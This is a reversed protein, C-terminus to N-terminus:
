AEAKKAAKYEDYFSKILVLASLGLMVLVVPSTYFIAYDNHSISLARRFNAEAIPELIMALLLPPLPFRCKLMLYGLVGFVAVILLDFTSNNVAFGGIVCLTVVIPMLVGSPIATIKNAGRVAALGCVLMLVNAIIFAAFIGYVTVPHEIFLLPGPTLGQIMLAGLMIATVIDGPVGLTLLPILAGGCVANNSSETAAIGELCGKGFLQPTKSHRRAESYAFFTAASVGTAPIIGIATGIVSSRLFNFANSTLDRLTLGQKSIAGSKLQVGRIVDEVTNLVQSMAFLGVLVPVLSLGNFLDPMDFTNRMDGTVPDLGITAFFLGLCASILGKVLQGQSLSAVITLGFVAVAFYEPASFSMAARALLPAVSVLALASFIGGIFSAVTAMDLARRSEGKATLAPGELMTAAASVTGPTGVLIATICGGYIAGCYMGLLASFAEVSPMGFTLPILLAVGMAATLGPLAGFIIGLVVGMLNALIANLSLASLIGDLIPTLM